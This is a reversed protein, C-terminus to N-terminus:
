KKLRVPTGCYTCRFWRFLLLHLCLPVIHGLLPFHHAKTNKLCMRPVFVKQGCIRCGGNLGWILYGFGFVPLSLPFVLIWKPVWSFHEPKMDSLMLLATSVLGIPFLVAVALTFLAGLAMLIPQSHLVGRIYARSQPDRGKNTEELPGRILAVRKHEEAKAVVAQLVGSGVDATSRLKSPDFKDLRSGSPEALRINGLVAPPRQARVVPARDEVRAELDGPYRSLLIAPPIDDVALQQDVLLRAPLPIAYPADALMDAVEPSLEHNVPMTVPVKAGKAVGTLNRAATIWKEVNAQAPARKSIQLIRHARELESTLEEIGAKSLSEADSFGAAELLELNAKGIGPIKGLATM